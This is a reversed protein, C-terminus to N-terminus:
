ALMGKLEENTPQSQRRREKTYNEESSANEQIFRVLAAVGLEKRIVEYVARRLDSGSLEATKM